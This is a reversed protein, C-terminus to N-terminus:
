LTTPSDPSWATYYSPNEGTQVGGNTFYASSPNWDSFHQLPAYAVNNIRWAIQPTRCRLRPKFKSNLKLCGKTFDSFWRFM